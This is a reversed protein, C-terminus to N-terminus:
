RAAPSGKGGAAAKKARAAERVSRLYDSLDGYEEDDLRAKHKMQWLWRKWVMDEYATPDLRKHCRLCKAEYLRKAAADAASPEGGAGVGSSLVALALVWGFIGARISPVRGACAARHHPRFSEM